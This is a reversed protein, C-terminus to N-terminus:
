FDTVAYLDIEYIVTSFPPIGDTGQAGFALEAPFYFRYSSGARMMCLGDLLGPMITESILHRVTDCNGYTQDFIQGNTFSGKYDFLAVLGMEGKRGKGERLVEYYYGKDSKKVNPNKKLLDSFYAAERARTEELQVQQNTQQNIYARRELESLLIYTQEQTMPQQKQDLTAFIAQILLERDLEIDAKAINQALTFGLAWTLSDNQNKLEVTENTNIVFRDKNRCSTTLGIICLVAAALLVKKM